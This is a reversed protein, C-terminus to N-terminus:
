VHQPRRQRARSVAAVDEAPSLSGPAHSHRVVRVLVVDSKRDGGWAGTPRATGGSRTPATISRRRSRGARSLLGQRVSVGRLTAGRDESRVAGSRVKTGVSSEAASRPDGHPDATTRWGGGVAESCPMRERLRCVGCRRGSKRFTATCGFGVGETKARVGVIKGGTPEQPQPRSETTTPETKHHHTM